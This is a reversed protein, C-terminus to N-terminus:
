GARRPLHAPDNPSGLPRPHGVQDLLRPPQPAIVQPTPQTLLSTGM